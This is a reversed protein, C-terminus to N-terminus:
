LVYVMAEDATIETASKNWYYRNTYILGLNSVISKTSIKFRISGGYICGHPLKDIYDIKFVSEKGSDEKFRYYRDKKMSTM